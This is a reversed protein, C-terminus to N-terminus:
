ENKALTSPTGTDLLNEVVWARVRTWRHEETEDYYDDNIYAVERAMVGAINFAKSVQEPEEPDIASMDLGRKAGVVGLACYGGAYQLENRILRKEPMADLGDLMERLLQQGRKGRIASAVRGRYMILQWGDCDDTYGSRSM